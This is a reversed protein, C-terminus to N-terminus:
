NHIFVRVRGQGVGSDCADVGVGVDGIEFPQLLDLIRDVEGQKTVLDAELVVPLGDTVHLSVAVALAKVIQVCSQEERLVLKELLDIAFVSLKIVISVGL